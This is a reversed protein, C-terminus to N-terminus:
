PGDKSGVVDLRARTGTKRCSGDDPRGGKAFRLTRPSWGRWTRSAPPDKQEGVVVAPFHPPREEHNMVKLDDTRDTDPSPGDAAGPGVQPIAARHPRHRTMVPALPLAARDPQTRSCGGDIAVGALCFGRHAGRRPIAVVM